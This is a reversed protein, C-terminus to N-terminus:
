RIELLKNKALNAEKSAPFEELVRKLYKQSKTLDGMEASALGIKFLASPVKQNGPYETVLSELMQIAHAYDRLNYYSHGLWYRASPVLSSGPYIKIFHQFKSVADAYKGKLFNDYAVNFSATPMTLSQTNVRADRAGNRAEEGKRRAEELSEAETNSSPQRAQELRERAQEEQKLLLARIEEQRLREAALVQRDKEIVQREAVLARREAELLAREKAELKKSYCGLLYTFQKAAEGIEATELEKRSVAKEYRVGHSELFLKAVADKVAFNVNQPIDGTIRAMAVADLKSVIVGVVKGGRDLLPGGSNGPQVPVTIQYLGTDNGLGALASVTGTTVTAESALLGHLPYGVAIVRDGARINRGERFSAVKPLPQSLKVIALDNKKDTAVIALEKQEGEITIRLSPCNEVVHENTLIHGQRSVVFGSGSSTLRAARVEKSDDYSAGMTPTWERALRQAEAVQTSSMRREVQNRNKVARERSEQDTAASASLNYWKHAQVYDQPTGVGHEHMVGLNNQASKNGQSAAKTYWHLAQQYDQLVGNGNDYALGLNYQASSDGQEAAKRFWQVAHVHDQPLGEGNSYMVGLRFQADVDGQDAAKRFWQAAQEYDRPIGRGKWYMRGLNFQAEAHGTEAAKTYWRRAEQDDQPVGYGFDHMAGLYFQARARTHEFGPGYTDAWYQRIELDTAGARRAPPGVEKMFEELSPCRSCDRDAIATFKELAISYNKDELAKLADEFATASALVSTTLLLILSLFIPRM